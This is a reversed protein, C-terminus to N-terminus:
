VKYSSIWNKWVEVQSSGCEIQLENSCVGVAFERYCLDKCDYNKFPCTNDYNQNILVNVIGDVIDTDDWHKIDEIDMSDGLDHFLIALAQRLM